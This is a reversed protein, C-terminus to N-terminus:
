PGADPAVAAKNWKLDAGSLNTIVLSTKTFDKGNIKVAGSARTISCVFPSTGDQATISYKVTGAADRPDKIYAIATGIVLNNCGGLLAVTTDFDTVDILTITDAKETTVHAIPRLVDDASPVKLQVDTIKTEPNIEVCAIKVATAGTTDATFDLRKRASILTTNSAFSPTLIPTGSM